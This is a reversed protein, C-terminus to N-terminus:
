LRIAPAKIAASELLRRFSASSDGAVAIKESNMEIVGLLM